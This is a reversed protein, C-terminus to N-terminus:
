EYINLENLLRDLETSVKLTKPHTFGLEMGCIIMEKRKEEIIILLNEEEKFDDMIYKGNYEVSKIILDVYSVSM